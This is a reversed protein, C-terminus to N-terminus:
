ESVAKRKSVYKVEYKDIIQLIGNLSFVCSKGCLKSEGVYNKPYHYIFEKRIKEITNM